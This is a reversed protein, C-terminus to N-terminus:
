VWFLCLLTWAIRLQTSSLPKNVVTIHVVAVNRHGLAVSECLSVEVKHIERPHMKFTIILDIHLNCWTLFDFNNYTLTILSYM